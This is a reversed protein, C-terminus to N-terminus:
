LRAVSYNQVQPRFLVTLPLPKFYRQQCGLPDPSVRKHSSLGQLETIRSWPSEGFSVSSGLFQQTRSMTAEGM